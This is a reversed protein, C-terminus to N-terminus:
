ATVAGTSAAVGVVEHTPEEDWNDPQGSGALIQREALACLGALVAFFSAAFIAAGVTVGNGGEGGTMFLLLAPVFLVYAGEVLFLTRSIRLFGSTALSRPSNLRGKLSMRFLMVMFALLPLPALATLVSFLIGLHSFQPYNGFAEMTLLVLPYPLAALCLVQVAAAFRLFLTLRGHTM